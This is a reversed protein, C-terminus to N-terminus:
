MVGTDKSMYEDLVDDLLQNVEEEEICITKTVLSCIKQTGAMKARGFTALGSARNNVM